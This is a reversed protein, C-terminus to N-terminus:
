TDAMALSLVKFLRGDSISAGMRIMEYLEPERERNYKKESMYLRVNAPPNRSAEQIFRSDTFDVEENGVAKMGVLVLKDSLCQFTKLDRQTRHELFRVKRMVGEFIVDSFLVLMDEAKEKEDSKLKEWDDATIGNLILFDVFEKELENLEEITLLRYKPKISM